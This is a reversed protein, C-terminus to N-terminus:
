GRLAQTPAIRSARWAPIFAAALAVLALTGIAIAFPLPSTATLGFLLTAAYRAAYYALGLGLVLGAGILWASEGLFMRVVRGQEAGLALRIGIEGRRRETLYSTVGYLGIAALLAAIGGFFASLTAMLRERVLSSSIVDDVHSFSVLNRPHMTRVIETLEATVPRTARLVITADASADDEQAQALFVVPDTRGDLGRYKIDGVVGVVTFTKPTENPGLSFHFQRGLPSAGGLYDRGFGETVVAAPPGTLTDRDDFTRGALIPMRMTDFYKPGVRTIDTFPRLEKGDIVVAQNWGSGTLPVILAFDATTVGPVRSVRDVLDQQVAVRQAPPVDAHRFDVDMQIVDTPDFGVDVRSLNYLTGGFLLAGTVLVLSVALQGVVLARRLNFRERSDTMGRGEARMVQAPSTRTARFAPALGFLLCALLGVGATFALVMWDIGLDVVIPRATSTDLYGVLLRSLAGAVLMGAAAGAAAILVSEAMLQRVLRRRSAGIALRVAMEAQRASARALMLNALNGCAIVLVAGAIALLLYLPEGYTTRLSSVGTGVRTTTLTFARYAEADETRYTAPVTTEFVAPSIAQAKTEAAPVAAGTDLRAMVSLWWGDGRPIYSSARLKPESCIPMAVDFDRGVEFGFFAPEAVGVVHFTEGNLRLTSGIASPNGGFRRQWFAHSLVAAPTGCGAADDAPVILRGAAPQVGAADFLNGSVWLGQAPESEGGDALDFTGGGWAFVRGLGETAALREYLPYSMTNRIGTFAGSRGKGHTDIKYEVLQEPHPVPLTRWQIANILAFIATNAGIGLALSAVAVITFTPTKRLVRLAYTLDLRLAEFWGISNMRYIEERILTPNGLKRHAARVADEQSLGRARQEEIELAIHEELERARVEDWDARRFWRGLGM